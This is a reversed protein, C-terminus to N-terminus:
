PAPRNEITNWQMTGLTTSTVPKTTDVNSQEYSITLYNLGYSDVPKPSKDSASIKDSSVYVNKMLYIYLPVVKGSVNKSVILRVSALRKDSLFDQFLVQAADSDVGTVTMSETTAKGGGAGGSASGINEPHGVGISFGTLKFMTPPKQSVDGKPEPGVVGSAPVELYYVDAFAPAAIATVAFVSLAAAIRAPISSKM